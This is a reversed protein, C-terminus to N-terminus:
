KRDIWLHITQINEVTNIVFNRHHNLAKNSMWHFAKQKQITNTKRYPIEFRNNTQLKPLRIMQVQARQSHGFQSTYSFEIHMKAHHVWQRETSTNIKFLFIRAFRIGFYHALAHFNHLNPLCRFHRVCSFVCVCVFLALIRFRNSHYSM